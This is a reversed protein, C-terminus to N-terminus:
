IPKIDPNVPRRISLFNEITPKNLLKIYSSVARDYFILDSAPDRYKSQMLFPLVPYGTIDCYKIPPKVSPPAEVSQYNYAYGSSAEAACIQKITKQRAFNSKPDKRRERWDNDRFPLSKKDDM